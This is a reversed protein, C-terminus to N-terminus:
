RTGDRPARAAGRARRRPESPCKRCVFPARIRDDWMMALRHAAAETLRHHKPGKGYDRVTHHGGPCTFRIRAGGLYLANVGARYTKM